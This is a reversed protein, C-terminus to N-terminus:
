EKKNLLMGGCNDGQAVHHGSEWAKDIVAKDEPKFKSCEFGNPSMVLYKCCDAGQGIKCVTKIQNNMELINLKLKQVM